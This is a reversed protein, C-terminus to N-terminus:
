KMPLRRVPGRPGEAPKHSATVFLLGLGGLMAAVAALTPADPGSGTFPLTGPVTTSTSTGGPGTTTSTSTGLVTPPVTEPPSTVTIEPMTTPTTTSSDPVSTTPATTLPVSTSSTTSTTSTTTAPVPCTIEIDIGASFVEDPGLVLVVDVQAGLTLEGQGVVEGFPEDEVGALVLVDNGSTVILDNGPHVSGQNEARAVVRCTRGRLEEPVVASGLHHQSGEAGRVVTDLPIEISVDQALVGVQLTLVTAAALFVVGAPRRYKSM